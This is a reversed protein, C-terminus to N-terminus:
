SICKRMDSSITGDQRPLCQEKGVSAEGEEPTDIDEKNQRVARHTGFAVAFFVLLQKNLTNSGVSGTNLVPLETDLLKVFSEFIWLYIDRKCSELRIDRQMAAASLYAVVGM